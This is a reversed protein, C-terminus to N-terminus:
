KRWRNQVDDATIDGNKFLNANKRVAAALMPNQVAAGIYVDDPRDSRDEWLKGNDDFVYPNTKGMAPFLGKGNVTLFTSLTVRTNYDCTLGVDKLANCTAPNAPHGKWFPNSAGLFSKEAEIAEKLSKPNLGREYWPELGDAGYVHIKGNADISSSHPKRPETSNSFDCIIQVKELGPCLAKDFSSQAAFASSGLVVALIFAIFMKM